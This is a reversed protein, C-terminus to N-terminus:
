VFDVPVLPYKKKSEHENDRAHENRLEARDLIEPGLDLKYKVLDPHM